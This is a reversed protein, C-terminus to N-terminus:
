EGRKEYVFRLQETLEELKMESPRDLTTMADRGWGLGVKVDVPIVYPTRYPIPQELSQCVLQLAKAMMEFGYKVDIQFIISDHVQNLLQIIRLPSDKEAYYIYNLGHENIIEAVTSQPIHAFAQEFLRDGSGEKKPWRGMFIRRRGFANTAIRDKRLEAIIGAQYSARVGPYVKHWLDILTQAVKKLLGFKLGFEGAGMGYGLGHNCKKGWFRESFSGNGLDSSGPKDSVEDTPKGFMMGYTQRHVDIGQEFARILQPVPGQYAVIRNEASSLDVDFFLHGKDAHIYTKFLPTLNQMSSGTKAITTSTSIRGTGMPMKDPKGVPNFSCRFRGDDDFRMDLYASKSKSLKRLKAIIAAERFGKAALRQLAKEDTTVKGKSKYPAQKKIKYFYNAVQQSSGAFTPTYHEGVLTKLEEKLLDIQEQVKSSAARLGPIDVVFGKNQMYCLPHVIRLHKRYTEYNNRKKLQVEIKHMIEPLVASDIASYEYFGDMNGIAGWNSKEGWDKYYPQDTLMSCLFALGKPFDPYLIAHAIMTDDINRTVIGYRKHLYHIDFSANQVIKNISNDELVDAIMQWITAEQHRDFYEGKEYIFPICIAKQVEDKLYSFSICSVELNLIEIDFSIRKKIKLAVLFGCAEVFTPRLLFDRPIERIEPFQQERAIRRMDAQIYYRNMYTKFTSAPHFTPTVKPSNIEPVGKIISGRWKTIGQNRTLAYLSVAGTPVIVNPSMAALEKYLMEEYQDYEETRTIMKKGFRIFQAINNRRPQEKVVNTVYCASRLIGAENLFGNLRRGSEGVFPCKQNDEEVGPAEGVIVIKADAPGEGLVTPTIM